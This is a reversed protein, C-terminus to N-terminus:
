PASNETLWALYDPAGAGIPLAILEPVAYPHLARVKECVADFRARETKIVLLVEAAREVKGQWRYHSTVGPLANVCAALRDEVLAQALRDALAQDPVTCLIAIADTPM